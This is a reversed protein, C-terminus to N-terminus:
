NLIGKISLRESINLKSISYIYIPEPLSKPILCRFILKLTFFNKKNIFVLFIKYLFKKLILIAM